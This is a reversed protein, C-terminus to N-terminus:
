ERQWAVPKKYTVIVEAVIAERGVVDRQSEVFERVGGAHRKQCRHVEGNRFKAKQSSHCM